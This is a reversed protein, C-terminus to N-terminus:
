LNIDFDTLKSNSDIIDKDKKMKKKMEKIKDKNRGM